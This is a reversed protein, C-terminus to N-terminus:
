LSNLKELLVIITCVNHIQVRSTRYGITDVQLQILPVYIFEIWNLEIQIDPNVCKKNYSYHREHM